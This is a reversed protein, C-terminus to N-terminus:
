FSSNKLGFKILLSTKAAQLVNTSNEATLEVLNEGTGAEEPTVFTIQHPDSPNSVISKGNLLWAFNITNRTFAERSFYYPEVRVTVEPQTLNYSAGIAHHYSTGTLPEEEYLVLRPEKIPIVLTKEAALEEDKTKVRVKVEVAKDEAGVTFSLSNKGIGSASGIDRHDKIWSFNLDETRMKQGAANNINALATVKVTSGISPQSHGAYFAPTYSDSEWLLYVSNASQAQAVGTWVLSILLLIFYHKM